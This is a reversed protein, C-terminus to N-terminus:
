RPYNWTEYNKDNGKKTTQSIKFENGAQQTVAKSFGLLANKKLALKNEAKYASLVKEKNQPSKKKNKSGKDKSM